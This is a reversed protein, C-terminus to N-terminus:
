ASLKVCILVCGVNREDDFATPTNNGPSFGTLAGVVTDIARSSGGFNAVAVAFSKNNVNESTMEAVRWVPAAIPTGGSFNAGAYLRPVNTSNTPTSVPDPNVGFMVLWRGFPLRVQGDNLLGPGRLTPGFSTGGITVSLTGFVNTTYGYAAEWDPSVGAGANSEVNPQYAVFYDLQMLAAIEVNQLLQTLVINAGASLTVDGTLPGGTGDISDVGPDPDPFPIPDTGDAGHTRGHYAPRTM